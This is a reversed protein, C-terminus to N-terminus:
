TRLVWWVPRDHAPPAEVLREVPQLERRVRKRVGLSFARTDYEIRSPHYLHAVEKIFAILDQAAEKWEADSLFYWYRGRWMSLRLTFKNLWEVTQSREGLHYRELLSVLPRLDKEQPHWFILDVFLSAQGLSIPPKNDHITQM